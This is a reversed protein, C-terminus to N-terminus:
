GLVQTSNEKRYDKPPMGMVAKFNRNFSRLSDFGCAYAVDLIKKQTNRLLYAAENIRYSNVHETFTLGTHQRFYRSLYVSHYSTHEALAQLSCDGSYSSEVFRFIRLLLDEESSKLEVYEAQANFAGCLTYLIGKAQLLEGESHLQRLIEICYPQVSFLNSKPRKNLYVNSYARVLQPSFICLVHSSRRPTHLQHMQNPFVLVGKGPTLHYQIKDVTVIMEGETLSIFEFSSHLHAPFGFDTGTEIKLQDSQQSNKSEYFM